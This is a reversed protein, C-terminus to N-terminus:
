NLLGVSKIKGEVLPTALLSDTARRYDYHRRKKDEVQSSKSQRDSNSRRM